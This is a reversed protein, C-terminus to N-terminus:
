SGSSPPTASVGSFAAFWHVQAGTEAQKRDQAGGGADEGRGIRAGVTRDAAAGAFHQQGPGAAVRDPFQAVQQRALAGARAAGAHFQAVDVQVALQCQLACMRRDQEGFVGGAGAVAVPLVGVAGLDGPGAHMRSETAARRRATITGLIRGKGISGTWELQDGVAGAAGRGAGAAAADRDLVEAAIDLHGHLVVRGPVLIGRAEAEIGVAREFGFEAEAVGIAGVVADGVPM